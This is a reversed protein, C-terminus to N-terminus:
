RYNAHSLLLPRIRLHRGLVVIRVTSLRNIAVWNFIFCPASEDKLEDRHECSELCKIEDRSGSELSM